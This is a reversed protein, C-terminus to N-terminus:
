YSRLELRELVFQAPLRGATAADQIKTFEKLALAVNPNALAEDSFVAEQISPFRTAKLALSVAKIQGSVDDTIEDEMNQVIQPIAINAVQVVADAIGTDPSFGGKLSVPAIDGVNGSTQFPSQAM